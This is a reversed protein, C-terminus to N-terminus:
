RYLGSGAGHDVAHAGECWALLDDGGGGVPDSHKSIAIIRDRWFPLPSIKSARSNAPQEQEALLEDDVRRVQEFSGALMEQLHLHEDLRVRVQVPPDPLHPLTAAGLLDDELEM